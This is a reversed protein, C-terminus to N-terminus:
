RIFRYGEDEEVFRGGLVVGLDDLARQPDDLLIRGSVRERSVDPPVVTRIAFHQEVEALVDAVTQGEFVLEGRMWDLAQAEPVDALRLGQETVVGQQGPQMLATEGASRAALRVSGEELYVTTQPGWTAM